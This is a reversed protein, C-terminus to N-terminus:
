TPPKIPFDTASDVLPLEMFVFYPMLREPYENYPTCHKFGCSQYLTIAEQMIHGTDLRILQFGDNRTSAVLTHCIRRGIGAGQFRPPVFVRKIECIGEELRHYAGCGRVEDGEVALFARGNPAGYMTSLRKRESALAQRDLVETIFWQDQVYRARLWTIYENILQSFAKYDQESSAKRIILNM